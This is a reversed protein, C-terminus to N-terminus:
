MSHQQLSQLQHRYREVMAATRSKLSLPFHINIRQDGEDGGWLVIDHAGWEVVPIELDDMKEESYSLTVHPKYDPFKKSYRVGVQDLAAKLDDWLKHVEESELPCIVPYIGGSTDSPTFCSVRRTRLTFPRQKSAVGYIAEMAKALTKIDVNDELMLLTTHLHRSDVKDGPVDIETLVRVTDTPVSFGIFAM